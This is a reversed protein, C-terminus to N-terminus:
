PEQPTGLHFTNSRKLAELAEAFIPVLDDALYYGGTKSWGTKDPATPTFPHPISESWHGQEAGRKIAKTISQTPGRFANEGLKVRYAPGDLWGNGEVAAAVFQRTRLNLDRLLKTARDVTWEADTTVTAPAAVRNMLDTVAAMIEPPAPDPCEITIKM